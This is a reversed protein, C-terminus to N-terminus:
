IKKALAALYANMQTQTNGGMTKVRSPSASAAAPVGAAPSSAVPANAVADVAGLIKVNAEELFRQWDENAIKTLENMRYATSAFDLILLVARFGALELVGRGVLRAALVKDEKVSSFGSAINLLGVVIGTIPLYGLVKFGFAALSLAKNRTNEDPFTNLIAHAVTGKGMISDICILTTPRSCVWSFENGFNEHSFSVASTAM